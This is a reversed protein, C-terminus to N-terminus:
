REKEGGAISTGGLVVVAISSLLLEEAMDLSAGGSYAPLSPDRL